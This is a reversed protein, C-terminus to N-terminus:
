PKQGTRDCQSSLNNKLRQPHLATQCTECSKSCDSWVRQAGVRCEPQDRIVSTSSSNPSSVTVAARHGQGQAPTEKCKSLKLSTKVRVCSGDSIDLYPVASSKQSPLFGSQPPFICESHQQEASPQASLSCLPSEISQMYHWLPCTLHVM